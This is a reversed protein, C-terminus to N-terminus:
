QPRSASGVSRRDQPTMQDKLLRMGCITWVAGYILANVAGPLSDEYYKRHFMIMSRYFERIMRRSRKRTSLGKFHLVTAVPYYVLRWGARQIRLCLDLDEGYMFFREDFLGVQKVVEGRILMCAGVLADVDIQENAPAFTMNYRGFRPSHPFARDLGIFHFLSVLPTPEGRRCAKDLSGDARLLRPGVAGVSANDDLFSVLRLISECDPITDPNLLMVHRFRPAQGTEAPGFGAASLGLNNGYGYGGNFPSEIVSVWPYAERVLSASGDESCNDVFFVHVHLADRLPAVANLCGPLCERTNYNLIVVALDKQDVPLSNPEFGETEADPHTEYASM